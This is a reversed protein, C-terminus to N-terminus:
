CGRHWRGRTAICAPPYEPTYVRHALKFHNFSRKLGRLNKCIRNLCKAFHFKELERFEQNFFHYFVDGDQHYEQGKGTAVGQHGHEEAEAFDVAVIRHLTLFEVLFQGLVKSERGQHAVFFLEPLHAFEACVRHLHFVEVLRQFDHIEVAVAKNREVDIAVARWREAEVQIPIELVLKVHKRWGGGHRQFAVRHRAGLHLGDEGFDLPLLVVGHEDKPRVHQVLNRPRFDLRNVPIQLPEARRCACPGLNIEDVVVNRQRFREVFRLSKDPKKM